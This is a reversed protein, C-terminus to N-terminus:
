AILIPSFFNQGSAGCINQMEPSETAFNEGGDTIELYAALEEGKWATFVRVGGNEKRRQWGEIDADSMMIFCPSKGLHEGLCARLIRIKSFDEQGSERCIIAGDMSGDLAIEDLTRIADVCRMGFGYTFLGSLALSDHAYLAISHYAIRKKVLKEALSQYMRRYINTRNEMIAGHAHIPSFAGRAMSGYENEWPGICAWFGLLRGNEVAAVGLGNEALEQLGPLMSIEPLCCAYKREEQYNEMALQEATAAYEVTFDVTEMRVETQIDNRNCEFFYQLSTPFVIQDMNFLRLLRGRGVYVYCLISERKIRSILIRILYNGLYDCRQYWKSNNETEYSVQCITM